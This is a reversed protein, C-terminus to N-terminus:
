AFLTLAQLSVHHRGRIHVVFGSNEHRHTGTVLHELNEREASMSFGIDICLAKQNFDDIVNLLHVSRCKCPQDHLFDM